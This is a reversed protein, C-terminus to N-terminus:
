FQRKFYNLNKEELDVSVWNSNNNKSNGRLRLPDYRFIKSLTGFPTILGFYILTLIIPNTLHHLFNGLRLWFTQLPSLLKPVFIACLLFIISIFLLIKKSFIFFLIAFFISFIIGFFRTTKDKKIFKM